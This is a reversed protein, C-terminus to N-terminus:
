RIAKTSQSLRWVFTCFLNSNATVLMWDISRNSSTLPVRQNRLFSCVSHAMCDIHKLDYWLNNYITWHNRTFKTILVTTKYWFDLNASPSFTRLKLSIYFISASERELTKFFLNSKIIFIVLKDIKWERQTHKGADLQQLKYAITMANMTRQLIDATHSTETCCRFSATQFQQKYHKYLVSM